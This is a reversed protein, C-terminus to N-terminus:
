DPGTASTNALWIHQRQEIKNRGLCFRMICFYDLDNEKGIVVIMRGMLRSWCRSFSKAEKSNSSHSRVDEVVALSCAARGTLSFPDDVLRDGFRASAAPCGSQAAAGGGDIRQEYRSVVDPAGGM